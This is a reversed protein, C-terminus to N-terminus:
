QKGKSHQDSAVTEGELGNRLKVIKGCKRTLKRGKALVVILLVSRGSSEQRICGSLLVGLQVM